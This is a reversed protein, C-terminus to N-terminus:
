RDLGVDGCLVVVRGDPRRLAISVTVCLGTGQMSLYPRTTQPVGIAELARLFYPRRAWRAQAADHLPAFRTRRPVLCRAALVTDHLQRGEDDLQYCLQARPLQLFAACAAALAAGQQLAVAAQDIAALYPTLERREAQQASGRRHQFRDWIGALQAPVDATDALTPQPRGFFYGQALDVDCDLALQAEDETEIGEMLVLAGCEHLLSVMQAVIRAARPEHAARQVLSRDLKVIDPELRWVRDFNSHGAGFDDLALLCGLERARRSAAELREGGAVSEETVEIVIDQPQCGLTALRDLLAQAPVAMIELFTAPRLNVFLWRHLAQPRPAAAFTALHLHLAHRDLRQQGSDSLSGFLTLPPIPKGNEDAGRLLAEHGVVRQHSLSVIPQFHSSLRAAVSPTSFLPYPM